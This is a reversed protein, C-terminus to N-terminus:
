VNKGERTLQYINVFGYFERDKRALKVVAFIEAHINALDLRDNYVIFKKISGINKTLFELLATSNYGYAREITRVKYMKNLLNKELM